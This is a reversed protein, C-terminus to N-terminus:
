HRTRSKEYAAKGAARRKAIEGIRLKAALEDVINPNFACGYGEFHWDIIETHEPHQPSAIADLFNEFGPIGGVDEPPARRAGGIYRPYKTAPQGPGVAEVVITHRWDDGMDYTFTLDRIGRDILTALKVNKAATLEGDAWGPNPL